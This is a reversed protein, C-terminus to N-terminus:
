GDYGDYAEEADCLESLIEEEWAAMILAEVAPLIKGTISHLAGVMREVGESFDEMLGWSSFEEWDEIEISHIEVDWSAPTGGCSYTPGTEAEYDATGEISLGRYTIDM